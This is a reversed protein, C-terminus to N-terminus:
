ISRDQNNTWRDRPLLNQYGEGQPAFRWGLGHLMAQGGRQHCQAPDIQDQMMADLRSRRRTRRTPKGVTTYGVNASSHRTVASYRQFVRFNLAGFKRRSLCVESFESLIPRQARDALEVRCSGSNREGRPWFDCSSRYPGSIKCARTSFSNKLPMRRYVSRFESRRSHTNM